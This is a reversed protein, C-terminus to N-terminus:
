SAKQLEEAKELAYTTLEKLSNRYYSVWDKTRAEWGEDLALVKTTASYTGIKIPPVSSYIFADGSDNTLYPVGNVTLVKLSM